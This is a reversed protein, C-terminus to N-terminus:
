GKVYDGCADCAGKGGLAEIHFIFDCNSKSGSLNFIISYTKCSDYCEKHLHYNQHEEELKYYPRVDRENCGKCSYQSKTPKEMIQLQQGDMTIEEPYLAMDVDSSDQMLM